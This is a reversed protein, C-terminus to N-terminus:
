FQDKCRKGIEEKIKELRDAAAKWEDTDVAATEVYTEAIDRAECLELYSMSKYDTM